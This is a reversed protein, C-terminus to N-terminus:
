SRGVVCLKQKSQNEGGKMGFFFSSKLEYAFDDVGIYCKKTGYSVHLHSVGGGDLEKQLFIKRESHRLLFVVEYKKGSEFIGIKEKKLKIIIM